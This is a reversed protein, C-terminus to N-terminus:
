SVENPNKTYAVAQQWQPALGLFNIRTLLEPADALNPFKRLVGSIDRLHKESGGERFFELKRLIVYEPAAVKMLEGGGFEISKAQSLGWRQLPDRGVLYFDAKFGTANHIVNFSGRQPRHINIRLTEQPPCYFEDLPFAKQLNEIQNTSMEVVLDVDHTLRPEGYIVCAVSGTVMYNIGASTLRDTYLRVLDIPQM